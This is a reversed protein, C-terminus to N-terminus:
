SLAAAAEDRLARRVAEDERHRDMRVARQAMEEWAAAACLHRARVNALEAAEAARLAEDARTRYFLSNTM